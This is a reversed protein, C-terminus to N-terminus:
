VNVTWATLDLINWTLQQAQAVADSPNLVLIHVFMSIDLVYICYICYWYGIDMYAIDM